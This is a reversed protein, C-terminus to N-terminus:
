TDLFKTILHVLQELRSRTFATLGSRNLREAVQQIQQEIHLTTKNIRRRERSMMTRCSSSCYQADKRIATFIKGCYQCHLLESM